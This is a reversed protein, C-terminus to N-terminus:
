ASRINEAVGRLYSSLKNKRVESNRQKAEPDYSNIFDVHQIQVPRKFDKIYNIGRFVEFESCNLLDNPNYTLSFNIKKEEIFNKIDKVSYFNNKILINRAVPNLNEDNVLDINRLIEYVGKFNLKFLECSFYDVGAASGSVAISSANCGGRCVEWYGCKSCIIDFRKQIENSYRKYVPSNFIDEISEFDDISGIRYKDPFYRDCPYISGDSNFGLWKYRCDRHSCSIDSGGIVFNLAERVSREDVGNKDHLWHHFYKLFEQSYRRADIELGYKEAQSSHYIHNMCVGIGIDKYFEYIKIQDKYNVANIVDIVGVNVGESKFYLLKNIIDYDNLDINKDLSDMRGRLYKQYFANYSVGPRINYKKFLKLWEKDFLLGNSMLSFTFKTMPYKSFVKSFANEYWNTGVLTPEGGHWIIHVSESYNVLMKVIKELKEITLDTDSIKRNEIDFCYKCNLNCQNTPKILVSFTKVKPQIKHHKSKLCKLFLELKKTLDISTETDKPACFEINLINGRFETSCIELEEAREAFYLWNNKEPIPINIKLVIKKFREDDTYIDTFEVVDINENKCYKLIEEKINRM